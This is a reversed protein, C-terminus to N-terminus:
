REYVLNVDAIQIRDGPHLSIPVSEVPNGNLLTGNESHLDKIEVRGGTVRIEAHYRSVTLSSIVLDNGSIAGIRIQGRKLPFAEGNRSGDVFVLQGASRYRTLMLVCCLVVIGGVLGVLWPWVPGSIEPYTIRISDSQSDISVEITHANGDMAM